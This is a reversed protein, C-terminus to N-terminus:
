DGRLRDWSVPSFLPSTRRLACVIQSTSTRESDVYSTILRCSRRPSVPHPAAPPSRGTRVILFEIRCAHHPSDALSHRLESNGNLIAEHPLLSPEIWRCTVHRPSVSRGCTTPPLIAPLDPSPILSVQEDDLRHEHRLLASSGPSCSDSRGYSRLLAQLPGPAFPRLFTSSCPHVAAYIEEASHRRATGTPSETRGQPFRSRRVPFTSMTIVRIVLRSRRRDGATSEAVVPQDNM